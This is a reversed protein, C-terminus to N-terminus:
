LQATVTAQLFFEAVADVGRLQLSDLQRISRCRRIRFKLRKALRASFIDFFFNFLNIDAHATHFKDFKIWKFARTGLCDRGVGHRHGRTVADSPDFTRCHTCRM